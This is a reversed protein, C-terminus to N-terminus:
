WDNTTRLTATHAEDTLRVSKYNSASSPRTMWAVCYQVCALMASPRLARAIQISITKKEANMIHAYVHCSYLTGPYGRVLM